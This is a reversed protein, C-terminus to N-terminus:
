YYACYVSDFDAAGRLLVFATAFFIRKSRVGVSKLCSVPAPRQLLLRDPRNRFKRVTRNLEKFLGVNPAM